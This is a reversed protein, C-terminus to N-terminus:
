EIRQPDVQVILTARGYFQNGAETQYLINGWTPCATPRPDWTVTTDATVVIPPTIYGSSDQLWVRADTGSLETLILHKVYAQKGSAITYFNGSTQAAISVHARDLTRPDDLPIVLQGQKTVRRERVETKDM